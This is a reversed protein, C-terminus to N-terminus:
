VNKTRRRALMLGAAGALVAGIGVAAEGHWTTSALGVPTAQGIALPWTQSRDGLEIRLRLQVLETLSRGEAAEVTVPDFGLASTSGTLRALAADGFLDAGSRLDVAGGIAVKTSLLTRDRRLRVGHFPGAPGTLSDLVANAESASRFSREVAFTATGDAARRLAEVAWGQAELDATLLAAAPDGIAQSADSDLNVDVRVSGSGNNRAHVTVTGDGRCSSLALVACALVLVRRVAVSVHRRRVPSVTPLPLPRLRIPQARLSRRVFARRARRLRM